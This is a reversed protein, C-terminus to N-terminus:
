YAGTEPPTWHMANGPGSSLQEMEWMLRSGDPIDRAGPEDTGCFAIEMCVTCNLANPATVNRFQLTQGLDMSIKRPQLRLSKLDVDIIVTSGPM